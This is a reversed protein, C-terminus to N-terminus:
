PYEISNSYPELHDNGAETEIDAVVQVKYIGNESVAYLKSLGIIPENSPGIHENWTKVEEWGSTEFKLLQMEIDAEVLTARLTFSATCTAIGLKSFSLMAVGSNVGEYYLTTETASVPAVFMFMMSILLFISIFRKM